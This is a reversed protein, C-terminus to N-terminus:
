EYGTLAGSKGIFVNLSYVIFLHLLKALYHIPPIFYKSYGGSARDFGNGQLCLAYM